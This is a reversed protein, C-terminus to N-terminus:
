MDLSASARLSAKEEESKAKRVMEASLARLREAQMRYYAAHSPAPEDAVAVNLLHVLSPFAPDDDDWAVMVFSAGDWSFQPIVTEGDAAYHKVEVVRGQRESATVGSPRVTREPNPDIERFYHASYRVQAGIQPVYPVDTTMTIESFQRTQNHHRVIYTVCIERPAGPMVAVCAHIKRLKGAEAQRQIQRDTAADVAGTFIIQEAM